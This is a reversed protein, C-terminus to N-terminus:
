VNGHDDADARRLTVKLFCETCELECVSSFPSDNVVVIINCYRSRRSPDGNFLFKYAYQNTHLHTKVTEQRHIIVVVIRLLFTHASFWQIVLSVDQKHLSVVFLFRLPQIKLLVDLSLYSLLHIFQPTLVLSELILQPLERFVSIPSSAKCILVALLCCCIHYILIM